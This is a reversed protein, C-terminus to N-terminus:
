PKLILFFLLSSLLYVPTFRLFFKYVCIGPLKHWNNREIKRLEFFLSCNSGSIVKKFTFFVSGVTKERFNEPLFSFGFQASWNENSGLEISLCGSSKDWYYGFKSYLHRISKQWGCFSLFSKYDLRKRCVTMKIGYKKQKEANIRYQFCAEEKPGLALTIKQPQPQTVAWGM